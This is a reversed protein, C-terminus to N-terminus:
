KVIVQYSLTQTAPQVTRPRRQDFTLTTSGATRPTFRWVTWGMAADELNVTRTDREFNPGSATLVGPKFDVLSWDLGTTPNTFLRVDLTQGVELTITAGTDADSVTVARQGPKAITPASLPKVPEHAACGVLLAVILAASFTHPTPKMPLTM